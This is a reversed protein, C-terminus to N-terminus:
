ADHAELKRFAVCWVWPNADSIEQLREVRVSVIELTIRSCSRYMFRGPQPRFPDVREALKRADAPTLIVERETNDALYRCTVPLAEGQVTASILDDMHFGSLQYGEQVWLHDGPKGYPCLFHCMAMSPPTDYRTGVLATWWRDSRGADNHFPVIDGAKQWDIRDNTPGGLISSGRSPKIVRRTQTKRGALIAQVMEGSFLIPRSDPQRM